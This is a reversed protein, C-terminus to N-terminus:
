MLSTVTSIFQDRAEDTDFFFENDIGDVVLHVVSIGRRANPETILGIRKIAIYETTKGLNHAIYTPYITFSQKIGAYQMIPEPM